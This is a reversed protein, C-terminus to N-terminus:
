FSTTSTGGVGVATYVGVEYLVANLDSGSPENALLWSIGDDSYIITGAQGVAVIRSGITAAYLNNNTAPQSVNSWSGTPSTTTLITGSDGFIYFAASLALDPRALLFAHLDATTPVPIAGWNASDPSYMLTGNRGLAVLTGGAYGVGLLDSTTGSLRLTWNSGDPSTIITGALGVAVFAQGYATVATLNSATASQAAANWNIGNTSVIITGADGVAVFRALAPNYAVGNLNASIPSSQSQWPQNGNQDLFTGGPITASTFISGGSGVMVITPEQPAPLVGYALANNSQNNTPPGAQFSNGAPRPIASLSSTTPGAAGGATANIMFSYEVGNALGAVVQPDSAPTLIRAGPFTSYDSRTIAPAEALFIWYTLDQAQSFNVVVQGDGPVVNFGTPATPPQSPNSCGAVLACAGLLVAAPRFVLVCVEIPEFCSRLTLLVAIVSKLASRRLAFGAIAKHQAGRISM